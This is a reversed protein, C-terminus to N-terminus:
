AGFVKSFSYTFLLESFEGSISIDNEGPLLRLWNKSFNGLRYNGFSSTIIKNKNDVTIEEQSLLNTFSFIRDYGSNDSLNTIEFSSGSENIKFKIDPYM